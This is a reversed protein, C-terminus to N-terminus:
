RKILAAEEGRGLEGLVAAYAARRQLMKTRNGPNEEFVAMAKLMLRYASRYDGRLRLFGGLEWMAEALDPDAAPLHRELISIARRHM